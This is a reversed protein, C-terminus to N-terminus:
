KSYDKVKGKVSGKIERDPDLIDGRFTDKPIYSKIRNEVKKTILSPDVASGAKKIQVYNAEDIVVNGTNSISVDADYGIKNFTIYIDGDMYKKLTKADGIIDRMLTTAAGKHTSILIDEPVVRPRERNQQKAVEIDNVVWVIHINQKNYGLSLVQESLRILKDFSRLTVDFIINPKKEPAQMSASYMFVDKTKRDLGLRKIINHSARVINEDKLLKEDSRMKMLQRKTYSRDIINDKYLDYLEKVLLGLWDGFKARYYKLEDVDFVKGNIGLLKDTVFGKGSAAGGALIVINGFRPYAKKNFTILAEDLYDKFRM